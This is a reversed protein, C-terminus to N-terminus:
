LPLIATATEIERMQDLEVNLRGDYDIDDVPWYEWSLGARETCVPEGDEDDDPALMRDQQDDDLTLLYRQGGAYGCGYVRVSHGSVDVETQGPYLPGDSEAAKQHHYNLIVGAGEQIRDCLWAFTVQPAEQVSVPGDQPLASCATPFHWGDIGGQHRLDVDDFAAASELYGYLGNMMGGADDDACNEVGDGNCTDQVFRGSYMDLQGPMTVGDGWGKVNPNGFPLGFTDALYALNNGMAAVVCQNRAAEVNQVNPLSHEWHDTISGPSAPGPPPKPAPCGDPPLQPGLVSGPSDEAWTVVDFSNPPVADVEAIRTRTLPTATFVVRLALTTGPATTGLDFHVRLPPVAKPPPLRRAAVVSPWRDQPRSTVPVNVAIWRSGIRASVFGAAAGTRRTVAIPDISLAGTQSPTPAAGDCQVHVHQVTIETRTLPRVKATSTLAADRTASRDEVPEVCGGLILVSSILLEPKM